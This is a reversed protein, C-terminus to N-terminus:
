SQLRVEELDLDRQIRRLVVDDIIGKSRLELLKTRQATIVERKVRLHASAREEQSGDESGDMRATLRHDKEEYHVRLDDLIDQPVWDESALGNLRALAARAVKLRAKTEEREAAGDDPPQLWRILSPLSLGQVVLTALIVCFTLFIIIDRGPFTATLALAAALSVGGRM